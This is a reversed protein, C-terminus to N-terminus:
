QGPCQVRLVPLLIERLRDLGHHVIRWAQSKSGLCLVDALEGFSMDEVVHLRIAQAEREPLTTMANDLADIMQALAESDMGDAPCPLLEPIELSGFWLERLSLWRANRRAFRLFWTERDSQKRVTRTRIAKIAARGAADAAAYAVHESYGELQLRCAAQAKRLQICDWCPPKDAFGQLALEVQRLYERLEARTGPHLNTTSM